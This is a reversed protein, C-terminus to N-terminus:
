TLHALLGPTQTRLGFILGPSSPGEKKKDFCSYKVGLSPREEPRLEADIIRASEMLKAYPRYSPDYGGKVIPYLVLDTVQMMPVQKTIRKPRGIILAKFDDPRLGNYGSSTTPDFPMGEKKLARAYAQIARDEHKGSEEFYVELQTGCRSAHKAAREALIAFATKCLLWPEKYREAYRAVYGPRDVVCAISVIPLEIIMTELDALFDSEKSADKGLWAFTGRHGRIRTSHLPGTVQWKAILARHAAILAGINEEHILIGGLAFYDMGDLRSQPTRDPQRVGSDDFYLHMRKM